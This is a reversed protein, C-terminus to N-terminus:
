VGVIMIYTCGRLGGVFVCDLLGRISLSLFLVRPKVRRWDLARVAIPAVRARGRTKKKEYILSRVM